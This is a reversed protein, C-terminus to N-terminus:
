DISIPNAVRLRTTARFRKVQDPTPKQILFGPEEPNLTLFVSAGSRRVADVRWGIGGQGEILVDGVKVESAPRSTYYDM